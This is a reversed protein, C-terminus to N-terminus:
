ALGLNDLYRVNNYINYHYRAIYEFSDVGSIQVSVLVHYWKEPGWFPFEVTDTYGQLM